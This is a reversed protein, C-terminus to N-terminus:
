RGVEDAVVNLRDIVGIKVMKTISIANRLQHVVWKGNRHKRRKENKYGSAEDLGPGVLHNEEDYEERITNIKLVPAIPSLRREEETHHFHEM